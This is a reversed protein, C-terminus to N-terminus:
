QHNIIGKFGANELRGQFKSRWRSSVVTRSGMYPDRYYRMRNKTNKVSRAKNFLGLRLSWRDQTRSCQKLPARPPITASPQSIPTYPPGTVQTHPNLTCRYCIIKDRGSYIQEFKCFFAFDQRNNIYANYVFYYNTQELQCSHMEIIRQLQSNGAAPAHNPMTFIYVAM